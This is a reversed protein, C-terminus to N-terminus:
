ILESIARILEALEKKDSITKEAIILIAKLRREILKDIEDANQM